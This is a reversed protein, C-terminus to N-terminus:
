LTDIYKIISNLSTFDEPKADALNVEKNIKEELETVFSVLALSDLMGMEYLNEDKIENLEAVDLGTVKSMCDLVIQEINM